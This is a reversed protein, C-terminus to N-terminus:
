GSEEREREKTEEVIEDKEDRKRPSSVFNGM